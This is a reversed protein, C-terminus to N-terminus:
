VHDIVINKSSYRELLYKTVSETRDCIEENVTEKVEKEEIYKSM